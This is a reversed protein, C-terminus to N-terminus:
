KVKRLKNMFGDKKDQRKGADIIKQAVEKSVYNVYILGEPEENWFDINNPDVGHEQEIRAGAGIELKSNEAEESEFNEDNDFSSFSFNHLQFNQSYMVKDCSQGCPGGKNYMGMSRVVSKLEPKEKKSKYFAFGIAFVRDEGIIQSAIGECEEETIIYQRVEGRENKFGDIWMPKNTTSSIYNQASWKYECEPCFRDQQFGCGHKPCKEKYQELNLGSTPMGTIPNIGQVSVVIAVDHKQYQNSTFDFWMGKGSEVGIFYSSAKGSGHMWTKPCAPYEDVVFANVPSHPPLANLEENKLADPTNVVAFLGNVEMRPSMIKEGNNDSEFPKGTLIDFEEVQDKIKKLDIGHDKAIESLSKVV